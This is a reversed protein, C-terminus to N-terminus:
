KHCLTMTNLSTIKGMVFLTQFVMMYFSESMSFSTSIRSCVGSSGIPSQSVESHTAPIERSVTNPMVIDQKQTVVTAYKICENILNHNSTNWECIFHVVSVSGM